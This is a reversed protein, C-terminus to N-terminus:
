KRPAEPVSEAVGRLIGRLGTLPYGVKIGESTITFERLSKEYDSLRKKLVGVAKRLDGDVELLRLFILTDALYSLGVETARFDGVITEQENVVILAVGMNQLYKTLAHMRERLNEGRLGLSYGAVSDLMIVRTQNRHVEDRVLLAFEDPTYRLPEIRVIDIQGKSLMERAPLGIGDCRALLLPQEEEFSYVVSREGRSAAEKIFQMGLTTKGVGSPGTILTVTGREIGGGLLADMEPIGSPIQEFDFDTRQGIPELRPYVTMGRESLRVTHLGSHFDSGRLKIIQIARGHVSTTIDIVGDSMFQLDDDPMMENRESTFLVTAGREVLFRLFSVVQRRFQFADISLYRFQTMPDIFVREPNLSEIQEVIRRTIPEREVEAPAFIDYSEVEAFFSSSPSIDLIEVGSLDIGLLAANSRIRFESEELSIYLCRDGARRGAELYHLGATTKGAGPGGRLLYSAQPLLGGHLLEDLGAIGTSLRKQPKTEM